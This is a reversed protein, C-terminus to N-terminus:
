CLEQAHGDHYLALLKIYNRGVVVLNTLYKRVV